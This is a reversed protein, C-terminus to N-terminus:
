GRINHIFGREHSARNLEIKLFSGTDGVLNLLDKKAITQWVVGFNIVKVFDTSQNLELNLSNLNYDLTSYFGSIGAKGGFTVIDANDSLNWHEHAWMKGTAGVGTKTEDVM